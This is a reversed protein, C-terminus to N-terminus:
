AGSTSARDMELKVSAEAASLFVSVFLSYDARSADNEFPGASLWGFWRRAKREHILLFDPPATRGMRGCHRAVAAGSNFGGSEIGMNRIFRIFLGNM